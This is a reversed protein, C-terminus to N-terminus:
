WRDGCGAALSPRESVSGSDTRCPKVPFHSMDTGPRCNGQSCCIPRSAAPCLTGRRSSPASGLTDPRYPRGCTWASVRMGRRLDTKGDAIATKLVDSLISPGRAIATAFTAQDQAPFSNFGVREIAKEM